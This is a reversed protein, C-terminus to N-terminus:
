LKMDKQKACLLDNWDKDEVILMTKANWGKLSAREGLQLAADSGVKDGDPFIILTGMRKPLQWQKMGTASLTAYYKGNANGFLTRVSLANEIGEAVAIVNGTGGVFVSGGGCPGLMKKGLKKGDGTLFTRHIGVFKGDRRVACVMCPRETQDDAYYLNPHFRTDDSWIFIQRSNLYREAVSGELSQTANWINLAQATRDADSTITGRNQVSTARTFQGSSLGAAAIIEEFTCGSFCHLLLKGDKTETISLSPNKDEHAPCIDIYGQGSRKAKPSLPYNFM